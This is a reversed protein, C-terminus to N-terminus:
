MCGPQWDTSRWESLGGAAAAGHMYACRGGIKPHSWRREYTCELGASIEDLTVGHRPHIMGFCCESLFRSICISKIQVSGLQIHQNEILFGARRCYVHRGGGCRKRGWRTESVGRKLEAAAMCGAAGVPLRFKSAISLQNATVYWAHM